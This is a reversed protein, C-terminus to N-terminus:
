LVNLKILIFEGDDDRMKARKSQENKLTALLLFRFSEECM